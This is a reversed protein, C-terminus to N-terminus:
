LTVWIASIAFSIFSVIASTAASTFAFRLGRAELDDGRGVEIDADAEFRDIRRAVGARAEAEGDVARAHLRRRGLVLELRAVVEREAVPRLTAAFRPHDAAVGPDVRAGGAVRLHSARHGCAAPTPLTSNVLLHAIVMGPM